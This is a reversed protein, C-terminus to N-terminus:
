FTMDTILFIVANLFYFLDLLLGTLHLGSVSEQLIYTYFLWHIWTM